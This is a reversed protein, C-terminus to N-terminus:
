KPRLQLGAAQAGRRLPAHAPNKSSGWEVLHAFPDTNGVLVAEGEKTVVFHRKYYGTLVPATAEAQIRVREAIQLAAAQFEPSRRLEAEMRPNPRFPM